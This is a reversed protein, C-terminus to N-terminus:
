DGGLAFCCNSFNEVREVIKWIVWASHDMGEETLRLFDGDFRVYKELGEALSGIDLQPLLRKIRKVSIGEALRLGMFLTEKAEQITSNEVYYEYPHKGQKISEIYFEINKTNVYRTFGLHGGASIGTGIYDENKWYKKNHRCEYGRVAFNSIEYRKYGMELLANLFKEYRLCVLEDELTNGFDHKELVYVSVHKPQFSRVVEINNQITLDSEGPLGVIFDINTNEFYKSISEWTKKFDDVTHRRNVTKLVLDDAAQLGVSIRNFGLDVLQKVDYTSDPNIEITIEPQKIVFLERIKKCVKFLYNLEVDSPTGGGVYISEIVPKNLEASWIELETELAEFYEKVMDFNTYSVFDCYACRSRCFPVHIYLGCKFASM